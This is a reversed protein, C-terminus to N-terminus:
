RIVVVYDLIFVCPIAIVKMLLRSINRGEAPVFGLGAFTSRPGLSLSMPGPTCGPRPARPCGSSMCREAARHSWSGPQSTSSQVPCMGRLKDGELWSSKSVVGPATLLRRRSAGPYLGPHLSHVWISCAEPGDSLGVPDPHSHLSIASLLHLVSPM